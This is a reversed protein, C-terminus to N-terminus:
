IINTSYQENYDVGFSELAYKILKVCDDTADKVYAQKVMNEAEKKTFGYGVLIGACKNLIDSPIVNEQSNVKEIHSSKKSYTVSIKLIKKPQFVTDCDCVIKFNKTKAQRLSIWHQVGCNPCNYKLHADIETPKQNKKKIM